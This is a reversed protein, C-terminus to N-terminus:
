QIHPRGGQLKSMARQKAVEIEARKLSISLNKRDRMVLDITAKQSLLEASKRVISEAMQQNEQILWAIKKDKEIIKERVTLLDQELASRAKIHERTLIEQNYLDIKQATLKESYEQGLLKKEEAMADIRSSMKLVEKEHIEKIEKLLEDRARIQQEALTKQLANERELAKRVEIEALYEASREELETTMRKLSEKLSNFEAMLSDIAEKSLRVQEDRLFLEQRHEEKLLDIRRNSENQLNEHVMRVARSIPDSAEESIDRQDMADVGRSKIWTKRYKYIENPSGRSRGLAVLRERISDGTLHSMEGFLAWLDDCAQWVEQERRRIATEMGEGKSASLNM